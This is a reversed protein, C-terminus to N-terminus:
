SFKKVTGLSRTRIKKICMSDNGKKINRCIEQCEPNSQKSGNELNNGRTIQRSKLCIFDSSKTGEKEKQNKVHIEMCKEKIQTSSEGKRMLACPSTLLDHCFFFFFRLILQNCSISVMYIFLHKHERIWSNPGMTRTMRWLILFNKYGSPARFFSVTWLHQTM